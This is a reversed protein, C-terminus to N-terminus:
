GETHNEIYSYKRGDADGVYTATYAIAIVIHPMKSNYTVFGTELVVLLIMFTLFLLSIRSKHILANRILKIIIFAYMSYYIFFGVIGLESLIQWFNNHSYVGQLEYVEDIIRAFNGMGKGIIPSEGFMEQALQIYYSRMYLSNDVKHSRDEFWFKLMSEFRKGISNYANVDNMVIFVIFAALAAILIIHLLYNRKYVSFFVFMLPGAVAAFLAKRSGSFVVFVVFLIILFVYRKRGRSYFEYFAMLEACFVLFAVSNQNAGSFHSGMVGSTWEDSPTVAFEMFVIITMSLIFLKILRELDEATDVYISVSTISAIIVVMRLFYSAIHTDIFMSWLCSIASFVTFAVYWATNYPIVVRSNKRGLWLLMAAALMLIGTLTGIFKVDNFAFLTITNIVFTLEYIWRATNEKNGDIRLIGKKLSVM